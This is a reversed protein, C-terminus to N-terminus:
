CTNTYKRIRRYSSLPTLNNCLTRFIFCNGRGTFIILHWKYYSILFLKRIRQGGQILVTPVNSLIHRSKNYSNRSSGYLLHKEYSMLQKTILLINASCMEVYLYHRHNICKLLVFFM